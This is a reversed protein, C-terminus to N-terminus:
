LASLFAQADSEIQRIKEDGMKALTMYPMHLRPNDQLLTRNSHLFHWYLYNFPCASEGSKQKVKYTCNKCYDSMRDIYAGSAAYPKSALLGGDAFLIMGTVNPMEVWEYADAYVLLYWENVERPNIGCLLLFNGLVMLRQIHHAYANDSTERICQHLCNMRTNGDWFFGPLARKAQLFNNEAYSPMKLWYLGRVYERWGLIQRIFGEVANLPAIGQRWADEAREIVELPELLGCNLYFSLHSHYMWPQNQLMADQYDGFNALRQRIFGDLVQLAQERTVAYVFNEASGFHDAFRQRVLRIVDQTISDPAFIQPSPIVMDAAPPKRNDADYNWKGGIPKGDEMLVQTQKRMERYFFEMRLQRRNKAWDAFQQQPCVFRNDDRIEVPIGLTKSWRLMEEYLRYEGPKTLVLRDYSHQQLEYAVEALLSGRNGPADLKRYIVRNGKSTLREAFHRMASFLLIIKKKHHKVYTAEAIVEAMLVRDSAADIDTLSAINESLQDALILRLTSM